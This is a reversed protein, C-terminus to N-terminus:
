EEKNEWPFVIWEKRVSAIFFEPEVESTVKYFMTTIHYLPKDLASSNNAYHILSKGSDCIDDVILCNDIPAMLLPINLRHSLMVALVLGGRPLGYVGSLSYQHYKYCVSNVYDEIDNWTLYLKDMEGEGNDLSFDLIQLKM